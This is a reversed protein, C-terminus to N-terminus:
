NQIQQFQKEFKLLAVSKFLQEKRDGLLYVHLFTLVQYQKPYSLYWAFYCALLDVLMDCVSITGILKMHVTDALIYVSKMNDENQVVVLRTSKQGRM